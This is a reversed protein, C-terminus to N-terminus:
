IDETWHCQKGFNIFHKIVFFLFGQTQGKPHKLFAKLLNFPKFNTKHSWSYKLLGSFKTYYNEQSKLHMEHM